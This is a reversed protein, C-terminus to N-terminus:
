HSASHSPAASASASAMASAVANEKVADIMKTQCDKLKKTAVELKKQEDPTPATSPNAKKQIADNVKEVCDLTKCECMKDVEQEFFKIFDAREAAEKTAKDDKKEEKKEEKSCGALPPLCLAAVAAVVWIKSM